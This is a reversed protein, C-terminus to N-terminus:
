PPPPLRVGRAAAPPRRRRAPRRLLRSVATLPPTVLRELILYAGHLLGWIVFVWSAGHWLGGLFMTVTLNRFTKLRSGTSGGLPIFLYDRLWTSLSIHWRQWFEGFSRAL